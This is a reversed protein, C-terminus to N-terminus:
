ALITQKGKGKQEESAIKSAIFSHIKLNLLEHSLADLFTQAYNQNVAEPHCLRRIQEAACMICIQTFWVTQKFNGFFITMMMM